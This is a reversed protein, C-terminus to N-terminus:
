RGVARRRLGNGVVVGARDGGAVAAQRHSARRDAPHDPRADGLTTMVLLPVIEAVDRPMSVEDLAMLPLRVSILLAPATKVAALSANRILAAAQAAAGDRDVIEAGDLRGAVAPHEIEDVGVEFVVTNEIVLSLPPVILDDPLSTIRIPLPVVVIM